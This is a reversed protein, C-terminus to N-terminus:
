WCRSISGVERAIAEALRTQSNPITLKSLFEKLDKPSTKQAAILLKSAIVRRCVDRLRRLDIKGAPKSSGHVAMSRAKYVDKLFELVDQRESDSM